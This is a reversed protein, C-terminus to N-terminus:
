YLDFDMRTTVNNGLAVNVDLEGNIDFKSQTPSPGTPTTDDVAMFTFDLFGNWKLDAAGAHLPFLATMVLAPVVRRISKM